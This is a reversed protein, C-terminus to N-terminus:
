DKAVKRPNIEIVDTIKEPGQTKIKRVQASKLGKGPNQVFKFDYVVNTTTDYADLRVSGLSSDGRRLLEGGKYPAELELGRSGHHKGYLREHRDALRRAYAHKKTGAVAGVGGIKHEARTTVEVLFEQTTLQHIPKEASLPARISDWREQTMTTTSSSAGQTPVKPTAVPKPAPLTSPVRAAKGKGLAGATKQLVKGGLKTTASVGKGLPTVMAATGVVTKPVELAGVIHPLGELVLPAGPAVASVFGMAPTGRLSDRVQTALAETTEIAQNWPAVFDQVCQPNEVELAQQLPHRQAQALDEELAARREPNEEEDLRHRIAQQEAITSSFCNNRTATDAANAATDAELDLAMAATAAIMQAVSAGTEAARNWADSGPTLNAMGTSRYIEGAIEGVVAGFAGSLMDGGAIGATGAGTLAHLVKHTLWDLRPPEGSAPHMGQGIHSTLTGAVTAALANRISSAIIDCADQRSIALELPMRVAMSQAAYTAHDLVNTSGFPANIGFHNLAGATAAAIFTARLNDPRALEALAELPNGHMVLGNAFQPVMAACGAKLMVSLVGGGGPMLVATVAGIVIM